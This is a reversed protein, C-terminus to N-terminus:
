LKFNPEDIRILDVSDMIKVNQQLARLQIHTNLQNDPARLNELTFLYSKAARGFLDILAGSKYLTSQRIDKGFRTKCEIVYLDNNIIFVVDLDNDAVAKVLVGLAIQEDELQYKKKIKFYTWEEFWGGTLYQIEHKSLIEKSKASFQINKLFQHLHNDIQLGKKGIDRYNRLNELLDYDADAFKEFKQKFTETYEVDFLPESQKRIEFGYSSFYEKISIKTKFSENENEDLINVFRNTGIPTYYLRSKDFNRFYDFVALSMIKTGLTCNVVIADFEDFNIKKLASKIHNFNEENVTIIKVRDFPLSTARIIHSSKSSREMRETSIFFYRDIQQRFEKIYQVNPITQESVLTVYATLM